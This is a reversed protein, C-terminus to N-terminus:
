LTNSHEQSSVEKLNIQKAAKWQTLREQEQRVMHLFLEMIAKFSVRFSLSLPKNSSVNRFATQSFPSILALYEKNRDPMKKTTFLSKEETLSSM